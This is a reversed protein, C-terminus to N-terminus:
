DKNTVISFSMRDERILELRMKLLDDFTIGEIVKSIKEFYNDIFGLDSNGSIIQSLIADNWERSTELAISSTVFKSERFIEFDSECIKENLVYDVLIDRVQAFNHVETQACSYFTSILPRKYYDSAGATYVLGRKQRLEDYIVRDLCKALLNMVLRDRLSGSPIKCAFYVRSYERGQKEDVVLPEAPPSDPDNPWDFRQRYASPKGIPFFQNVNKVVDRHSVDGVVVIVSNEPSYYTKHMDLLLNRNVTSITEKTGIIGRGPLSKAGYLSVLFNEFALIDEENKRMSIETGIVGRENEVRDEPFIPNCYIDLLVELTKEFNIKACEGYYRTRLFSTDANHSICYRRIDREIEERTRTKTGQFVMHEFYHAIGLLEAPDSASGMLSTVSCMVQQTYSLRKTIIRLGDRRVTMLTKAMLVVGETNKTFTGVQRCELVFEM